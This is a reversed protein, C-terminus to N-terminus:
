RLEGDSRGRRHQAVTLGLWVAALAALIWSSAAHPHVLVIVVACVAAVSPLRLPRQKLYTLM